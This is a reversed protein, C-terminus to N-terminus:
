KGYDPQTISPLMLDIQEDKFDLGLLGLSQKLQTRSPQTEAAMLTALSPILQALTRRTM